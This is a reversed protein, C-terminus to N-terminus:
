YNAVRPPRAAGAPKPRQKIPTDMIALRILEAMAARAGEADKAAIADYVRWHDPVPDRKLPAIRQKFETLANVAATVGNTLSVIFPNATALLLAAHFQQDAIRGEEVHLTHRTMADLAQRMTDLHQQSRRTAALAAAAPEVIARLEFLGHLVEAAPEGSFVWSLVDPDLLHWQEVASVRTGVRPRSHVLGKAALIRVAERYATRSVKRQESAEVEGDLVHGPRYRGSVIMSGLEHAISGHLRLAKRGAFATTGPGSKTKKAAM